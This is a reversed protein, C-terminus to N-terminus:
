DGWWKSHDSRGERSAVISRIASLLEYENAEKLAELMQRKSTHLEKTHVIYSMTQRKVGGSPKKGSPKKGNPKKGNKVNAPVKAAAIIKGNKYWYTRGSMVKKKYEVM